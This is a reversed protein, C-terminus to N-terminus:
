RRKRQRVELLPKNATSLVELARKYRDAVIYCRRRNRRQSVIIGADRLAHVHPKLNSDTIIKGNVLLMSLLTRANEWKGVAKEARARGAM